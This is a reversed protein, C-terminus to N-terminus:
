CGPYAAVQAVFGKHGTWQGIAQHSLAQKCLRVVTLDDASVQMIESALKFRIWLLTEKQM